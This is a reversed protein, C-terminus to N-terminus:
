VHTHRNTVIRLILFPNGVVFSYRFILEPSVCSVTYKYDDDRIQRKEKNKDPKLGVM